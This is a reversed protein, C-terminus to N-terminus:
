DAAQLLNWIRLTLAKMVESDEPRHGQFLNELEDKEKQTLEVELVYVRKMSLSDAM